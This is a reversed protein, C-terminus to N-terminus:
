DQGRGGAAGSRKRDGPGQKWLRVTFRHREEILEPETGNHALMGPIMKKSVGMGYAEVYGYDRMINVLTQNRAYRVGTKMEEVTVTNPLRGPSVIEMRDSYISLMIDTGAISYDRHVLANIVAERIVEEPYEWSGVRRGAELHADPRTNRRVFDWAQEVLGRQRIGAKPTGLPVMPGRLDADARPAYDPEAGHHCVARIGSQPLYRDPAQGFLLIGDITATHQGASLTMLKTNKLLTEWGTSDDDRPLTGGRVRRFYDRIRRRDFADLGAGPVPKLGYHLRRSAQFMRELEERSAERSTDGVRIYYTKRAHHVRAYPKDPGAAVHIALVDCGPAADRAWSLIPTIPPEIKDRCLNGVWEQLRNRTVGSISGDKEVGLLVTGGDLNLFAVLEKALKHNAIDDRKFDLTSDEDSSILRLLRAKTM